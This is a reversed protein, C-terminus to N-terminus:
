LFRNCFRIQQRWFPPLCAIAHCLYFMFTFSFTLLTFPFIRSFFTLLSTLCLFPFCSHTLITPKPLPLPTTTFSPKYSLSCFVKIFIGTNFLSEKKSRCFFSYIIIESLDIFRSDFPYVVKYLFLIHKSFYPITYTNKSLFPTTNASLVQIFVLFGKM